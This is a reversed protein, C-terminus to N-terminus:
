RFAVANVSLLDLRASWHRAHRLFDERHQSPVPETMPFKFTLPNKHAGGVQFEYHLHPGTALGTAGVYGIVQGQEVAAGGQMGRAFQSLHAYLTSYSGGHRLIVANGYGGREGVFQVHGSSTAHVPTGNPAGYDVGTHAGRSKLIPHFRNYSFGSTIRSFKLPSRLFPRRLSLGDPSYYAMRDTGSRYGIARHVKGQNVFEAASIPGDALKQGSVHREESVVSFRDGVRLDHSFDIDWGFIEALQVIVNDSLGANQGDVFLSTEIQGSAYALRTEVSDRERTVQFVAAPKGDADIRRIHLTEGGQIRYHLEGILGPAALRLRLAQGPVLQRFLRTDPHARLLRDMEERGIGTRALLVTLSDGKRVTLEQWDSGHAIAAPLQLQAAPGDHNERGQIRTARTFTEGYIDTHTITLPPPTVPLPAAPNSPSPQQGPISALTIAALFVVLGVALALRRPLQRPFTFATKQGTIGSSTPDASM